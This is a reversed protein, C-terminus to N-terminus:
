KFVNFNFTKIENQKLKVWITCFNILHMVYKQLLNPCSFNRNTRIRVITTGLESMFHKTLKNNNFLMVLQKYTLKNYNYYFMYM